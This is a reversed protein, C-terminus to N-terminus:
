KYELYIERTVRVVLCVACMLAVSIGVIYSSELLGLEEGLSAYIAFRIGGWVTGAILFFWVSKKFERDVDWGFIIGVIWLIPDRISGLFMITLLELEMPM